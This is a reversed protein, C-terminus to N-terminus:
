PRDQLFGQAWGVLAPSCMTTKGSHVYSYSNRNTCCLHICEKENNAFGPGGNTKTGASDYCDCDWGGVIDRHEKVTLREM